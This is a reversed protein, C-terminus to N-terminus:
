LCNHVDVKNNSREGADVGHLVGGRCAVDLHRQCRAPRSVAVADDHWNRDVQGLSRLLQVRVVRTVMAAKQGTAVADGAWWAVAPRTVGNAPMATCGNSRAKVQAADAGAAAGAVPM